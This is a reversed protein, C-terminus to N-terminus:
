EKVDQNVEAQSGCVLKVFENEELGEIDDEKLIERLFKQIIKQAEESMRVFLWIMEIVVSPMDSPLPPLQICDRKM